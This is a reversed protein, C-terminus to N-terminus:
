FTIFKIYNLLSTYKVNFKTTLKCVIKKCYLQLKISILASMVFNLLAISALCDNPNFLELTHRVKLPNRSTHCLAVPSVFRTLFLTIYKISPGKDGLMGKKMRKM